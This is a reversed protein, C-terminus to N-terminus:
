INKNAVDRLLLFKEFEKPLRLSQIADPMYRNIFQRRITARCLHSLPSVQSAICKLFNYLDRDSESITNEQYHSSTKLFLRGSAKMLLEFSLNDEYTGLEGYQTIAARILPTKGSISRLSVDAGYDLLIRVCECNGRMAAFGLPTDRNFNMANVRAKSQLLYEVCDQKDKYSAWHLPSNGDGDKANVHAGHEVLIRVCEISVEAAYHLPSRDNHADVANVEAGGEILIAVIDPKAMKAAAHIPRLMSAGPMGNADAGQDLFNRISDPLKHKSETTFNNQSRLIANIMEETWFIRTQLAEMIHWMGVYERRTM